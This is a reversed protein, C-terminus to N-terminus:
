STNESWGYRDDPIAPSREDGVRKQARAWVVLELFSCGTSPLSGNMFGRASRELWAQDKRRQEEWYIRDEAPDPHAARFAEDAAQLEPSDVLEAAHAEVYLLMPWATPDLGRRELAARVYPALLASTRREERRRVAQDEAYDLPAVLRALRKKHSARM